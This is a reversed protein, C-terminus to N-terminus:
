CLRLVHGDFTFGHGHEQVVSADEVVESQKSSETYDTGEGKPVPVVARDRFGIIEMRDLDVAVTVGEIPRMYMNVTGDLYYCMVKVMRRSKEEGFWGVTFSMCVVEDLKLGRKAISATFPPYSTALSSAAVQEDFNLLPYGNGNYLKDSVVSNRSFDVIIEHSRQGIRALVLARRSPIQHLNSQWNLIVSKHPEDLGVYHFSVNDNTNSFHTNIISQAQSLESPTLSDLPHHAQISNISIQTEFFIIFFILNKLLLM